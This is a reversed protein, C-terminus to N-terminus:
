VQNPNEESILPEREDRTANEKDDILKFAIRAFIAIVPLLGGFVTYTMKFGLMEYIYSGGLFGAILGIGSVSELM